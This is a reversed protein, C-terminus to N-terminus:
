RLGIMIFRTPRIKSILSEFGIRPFHPFHAGRVRCFCPDSFIGLVRFVRSIRLGFRPFHPFSAKIHSAKPSGWQPPSKQYLIPPIKLYQFWVQGGLSTQAM